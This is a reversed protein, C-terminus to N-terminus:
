RFVRLNARLSAFGYKARPLAASPMPLGCVPLREDPVDAQYHTRHGRGVVGLDGFAEGRDFTCVGPRSKHVFREVGVVRCFKGAFHNAHAFVSNPSNITFNSAPFDSIMSDFATLNFGCM